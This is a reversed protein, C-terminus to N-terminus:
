HKRKLSSVCYGLTTVIAGAGVAGTVVTGAGTDVIRTPTEPESPNVPTPTPDVPKGKCSEDDKTVFVSADDKYVADKVAGGSVTASAWNVLQNKGCNMSKDVVKGTFRVFANSKAAYDGINVGTTTLTNEKM